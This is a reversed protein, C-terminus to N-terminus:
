KPQTQVPQQSPRSDTISLKEAEIYVRQNEFNSRLDPNVNWRSRAEDWGPFRKVEGEVISITQGPNVDYRGEIGPQKPTMSENLIVLVQRGQAEGIWFDRDGTVSLVNANDIRVNRGVLSEPNEAAYFDSLNLIPGAARQREVDAEGGPDRGFLAWVLLLGALAILLWAWWPFAKRREVAIEAM